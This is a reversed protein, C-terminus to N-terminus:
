TSPQQSEECHILTAIFDHFHGVMGDLPTGGFLDRVRAQLQHATTATTSYSRPVVLNLWQSCKAELLILVQRRM